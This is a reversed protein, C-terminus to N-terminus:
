RRLMSHAFATAKTEEQCHIALKGGDRRFSSFSM